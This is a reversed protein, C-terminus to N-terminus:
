DRDTDPILGERILVSRRSVILADQGHFTCLKGCGRCKVEVKTNGGTLNGKCLLKHCDACRYECLIKAQLEM